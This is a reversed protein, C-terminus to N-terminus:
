QFTIELGRTVSGVPGTPGGDFVVWQAFLRKGTLVAVNPVPFSVQAWGRAPIGQTQVLVCADPSVLLPCGPMNLFGLDLPLGLSQWSTNSAGLVLVAPVGAPVRSLNLKFTAGPAPANTAGIRPTSGSSGACGQGFALVGDPAGSYVRVSNTTQTFQTVAMDPFDDGNVDGVGAYGGVSTFQFLVSRDRGSYATAFFTPSFTAGILLDDFGDGDLDGVAPAAAYPFEPFTFLTRGTPGGHVTMYYIGGGQYNGFDTVAIDDFGDANVDGVGAARRAYTASRPLLRLLLSGNAGSYVWAGSSFANPASGPAVVLLDHVGDADFDGADFGPGLSQYAFEGVVTRLTTGTRGSIVWVRGVSPLGNVRASSETVAFDDFTDGDIDRLGDASNFCPWSYLLAQTPGSLVDLGYWPFGYCTPGAAWVPVDARGDGNPDGVRGAPIAESRSWLLQGSGGSFVSISLTTTSGWTGIVIDARGDGDVDGVPQATINSSVPASQWLVAQANAVAALFVSAVISPVVKLRESASKSGSGEILRRM